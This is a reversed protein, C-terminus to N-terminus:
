DSSADVLVQDIARRAIAAAVPNTDQYYPLAILGVSLAWGRGRAWTADDPALTARFIARERASLLTWAIMLDCAPDGVGLGGFDIVASLRGNVVLLNTPSLDGHIWVPPHQWAPAHVANDWATTVAAQDIIGDLDTIADRTPEDRDALPVGRFFNHSGPAPGGTPDVRQLAAIFGAVDTAAQRPDDIPAVIADEGPLWSCVTWPWPFREDATGATLVTPIPLPLLPGLRPLWRHEKDLQAAATTIRPLRVVMESGLRFMANDTGSSVVTSIALDAWQPCQSEILRHVVPVDIPFEDAHV